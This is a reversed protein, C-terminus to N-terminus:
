REIHPEPVGALKGVFLERLPDFRASRTGGLATPHDSM